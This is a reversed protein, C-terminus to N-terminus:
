TMVFSKLNMKHRDQHDIRVRFPSSKKEARIETALFEKLTCLDDRKIIPLHVKYYMCVGGRNKNSPHDARYFITVKLILEKM